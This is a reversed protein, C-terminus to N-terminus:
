MIHHFLFVEYNKKSFILLKINFIMKMKPFLISLSGSFLVSDCVIQLFNFIVM